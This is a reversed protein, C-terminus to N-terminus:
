VGFQRFHHDFHRYCLRSWERGTFAGFAPHEPWVDTLSRGAVREVLSFFERREAEFDRESTALTEQPAQVKDKPWPIVYLVLPKLVLRKLASQAPLIHLEGLCARLQCNLHYLMQAPSMRGWRRQSTPMLAQARGLLAARTPPDHLM